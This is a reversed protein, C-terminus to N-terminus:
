KEKGFASEVESWGPLYALAIRMMAGACEPFSNDDNIPPDDYSVREAECDRFHKHCVGCTDPNHTNTGCANAARLVAEIATDSPDYNYGNLLQKARFM